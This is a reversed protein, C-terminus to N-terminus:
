RRSLRRPPLGGADTVAYLVEATLEIVCEDCVRGLNVEGFTGCYKCRADVRIREPEPPKAKPGRKGM